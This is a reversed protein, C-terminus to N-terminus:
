GLKALQRDSLPFRTMNAGPSSTPTRSALRKAATIPTAAFPRQLTTTFVKANPPRSHPDVIRAHEKTRTIAPLVALPVGVPRQHLRIPGFAPRPLPHHSIQPLEILTAPQADLRGGFTPPSRPLLPEEVVDLRLPDLHVGGADAHLVAAVEAPRPQTQFQHPPQFQLLKQPPRNGFPPLFDGPRRHRQHHHEASEAVRGALQMDGLM